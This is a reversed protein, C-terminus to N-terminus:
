FNLIPSEAEEVIKGILELGYNFEHNGLTVADHGMFNMADIIPHPKELHVNYLDDTMLTGQITDGNDLLITNPNEERVQQVITYVKVLGIDPNVRADEYSWDYLNGHVDTTGLITIKVTDGESAMIPAAFIALLLSFVVILSLFKKRRFDV